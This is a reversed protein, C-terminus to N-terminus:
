SCWDSERSLSLFDREAETITEGDRERERSKSDTSRRVGHIKGGVITANGLFCCFISQSLTLGTSIDVCVFFFGEGHLPIPNYYLAARATLDTGRNKMM